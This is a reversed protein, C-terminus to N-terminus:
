CKWDKKGDKIEVKKERHPPQTQASNVV